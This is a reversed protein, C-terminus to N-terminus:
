GGLCSVLTSAIRTLLTPYLTTGRPINAGLDGVAATHVKTDKTLAAVLQPSIERTSLICSVGETKILARIKDARGTDLPRGPAVAVAGAPTLGYRAEFYQYGDHFVIYPRGRVPELQERLRADLLKTRAAFAEANLAYLRAYKPDAEGIVRAAARAIAIANNPDLWIHGDLGGSRDADSTNEWFTGTRAPLSKVDEVDALAVVRTHSDLRSLPTVLFTELAPGVWFIVDARKIRATDSPSLVYSHPSAAGALLVNNGRGSGQMVAAIISYVPKISVLVEPGAPNSSAADAAPAFMALLFAFLAVRMTLRFYISIDLVFEGM